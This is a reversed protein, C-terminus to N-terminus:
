LKSVCGICRQRKCHEDPAPTRSRARINRASEPVLKGPVEVSTQKTLERVVVAPAAQQKQPVLKCGGRSENTTTDVSTSPRHLSYKVPSLRQEHSPGLSAARKRREVVHRRRQFWSVIQM